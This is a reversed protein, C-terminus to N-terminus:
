EKYKVIGEEEEEERKRRMKKEMLEKMNREEELYKKRNIRGKMWNRYAKHVERKKRTVRIGDNRLIDKKIDVSKTVMAAQVIEKLKKWKKWQESRGEM